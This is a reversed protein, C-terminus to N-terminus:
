RSEHTDAYERALEADIRENEAGVAAHVEVAGLHREFHARAAQQEALTRNVTPRHGARGRGFQHELTDSLWHDPSTGAVEAERQVSAYAADSLELVLKKAM